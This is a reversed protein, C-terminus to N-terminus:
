ESDSKAKRTYSRKRRAPKEQAAAAPAEAMEEGKVEKEVPAPAAKKAPAAAKKAPASAAREAAKAARLRRQSDEEAVRRITRRPM